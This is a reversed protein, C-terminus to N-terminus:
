HPKWLFFNGPANTLKYVPKYKDEYIIKWVCFKAKAKETTFLYILQSLFFECYSSKINCEPSSNLSYMSNINTLMRFHNM